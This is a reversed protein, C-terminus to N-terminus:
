EEGFVAGIAGEVEAWKQMSLNQYGTRTEIVKTKPRCSFGVHGLTGTVAVRPAVNVNSFDRLSNSLTRRGFKQTYWNMGSGSTHQLTAAPCTFLPAFAEYTAPSQWRLLTFFSFDVLCFALEHKLSKSM